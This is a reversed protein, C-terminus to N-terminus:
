HVKVELAEPRVIDRDRRAQHIGNRSRHEQLGHLRSLDVRRPEDRMSELEILYEFGIVYEPAGRLRTCQLYDDRGLFLSSFTVRASRTGASAAAMRIRRPMARLCRIGLRTARSARGRA